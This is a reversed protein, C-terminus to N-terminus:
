SGIYFVPQPPADKRTVAVLNAPPALRERATEYARRLNARDNFRAKPNAANWAALRERWSGSTREIFAVLAVARPSLARARRRAQIGGSRKNMRDRVDRFARAVQSPPMWPEAEILIRLSGSSGLTDQMQMRLPPRPPTENTLVFVLADHPLWQHADALARALRTLRDHHQPHKRLWVQVDAHNGSVVTGNLVERRFALVEADQRAV